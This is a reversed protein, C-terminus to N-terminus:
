TLKKLDNTYNEVNFPINDHMALYIYEVVVAAIKEKAQKNTYGAEKLRTLTEKTIPPDNARLQNEVVNLIIKKLRPNYAEEMTNEKRHLLTLLILFLPLRKKMM